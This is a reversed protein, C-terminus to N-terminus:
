EKKEIFEKVDATNSQPEIVIDDPMNNVTKATNDFAIELMRRSKSVPAESLLEKANKVLKQLEKKLLM